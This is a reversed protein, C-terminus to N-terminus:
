GLLLSPGEDEYDDDSLMDFGMSMNEAREWRHFQDDIQRDAPSRTQGPSLRRRGLMEDREAQRAAFLREQERPSPSARHTPVSRMGRQSITRPPPEIELMQEVTPRDRGPGRLVRHLLPDDPTSDLVRPRDAEAAAEAYLGSAHTSDLLNAPPRAGGGGYFGNDRDRASYRPRRRSAGPVPVEDCYGWEVLWSTLWDSRRYPEYLM